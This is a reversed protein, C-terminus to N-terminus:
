AAKFQNWIQQRLKAGDSSLAKQSELRSITAQNPYIVANGSLAPNM